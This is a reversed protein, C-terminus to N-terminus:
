YFKIKKTNLLVQYNRNLSTNLSSSLLDLVHLNEVECVGLVDPGIGENFKTIVSTLNNIKTDLISQTWGRLERGLVKQLFPSRRPSNEIDFLNELNWWYIKHTTAM